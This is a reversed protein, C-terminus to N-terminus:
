HMTTFGVPISKHPDGDRVSNEAAQEKADAM